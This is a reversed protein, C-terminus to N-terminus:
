NGTGQLRETAAESSGEVSGERELLGRGHLVVVRRDPGCPQPQAAVSGEEM